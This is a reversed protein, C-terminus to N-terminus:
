VHSLPGLAAAAARLLSIIFDQLFTALVHVLLMDHTKILMVSPSCKVARSFKRGHIEVM